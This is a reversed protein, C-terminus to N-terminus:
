RHRDMQAPRTVLIEAVTALVAEVTALVVNGAM